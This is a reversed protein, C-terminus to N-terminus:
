EALLRIPLDFRSRVPKGDVIGPKWRRSRKLLRVAETGTDHGLDSLVKFGTLSGDLEVVFQILLTGNVGAALADSPYQYNQMFWSTFAQMGGPPAAIITVTDRVTTDRVFSPFVEVMPISSQDDSYSLRGMTKRVNVPVTIRNRTRVRVGNNMGPHWGPADLIAQRLSEGVGFGLTDVVQVASLSGDQEVIVEVTLQGRIDAISASDTYVVTQDLREMYRKLGGVPVAKVDRASEQALLNGVNALVLLIPLVNVLRNM